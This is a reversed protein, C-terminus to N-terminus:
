PNSPCKTEALLFSQKQELTPLFTCHNVSRVSGPTGTAGPAYLIGFDSLCVHGYQDLM